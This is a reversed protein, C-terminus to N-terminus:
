RKTATGMWIRDTHPLQKLQEQFWAEFQENLLRQRMSENLQAPIIKELRVIAMGEGFPLPEWLQGPQSTYLMQALNPPLTCLEVPGILGGMQAESGESYQKALEAFTQEGEKIRFYLENAIWKDNTLILSYVVRDLQGKRRLFYSELKHGWTAQKFKAVRLSRTALLELHEQNMGYRAVWAQRQADDTLEWQQYFQQCASATEEPMCSYSAIAQDIISECLLQPLIKYSALLPIIEEGTLTREGLQLVTNM